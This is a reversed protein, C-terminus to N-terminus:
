DFSCFLTGNDSDLKMLGSVNLVNADVVMRFTAGGLHLIKLLADVFRGAVVPINQVKGIQYLHLKSLHFRKKSFFVCKKKMMNERKKLTQHKRNKKQWFFM